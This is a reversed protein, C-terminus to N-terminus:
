GKEGEGEPGFHALAWLTVIGMAIILSVNMGLLVLGGMGRSPDASLLAV